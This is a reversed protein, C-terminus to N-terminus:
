PFGLFGTMAATYWYITLNGPQQFHSHKVITGTDTESGDNAYIILADGDKFDNGSFPYTTNPHTVFLQWRNGAPNWVWAGKEAVIVSHGAADTTLRDISVTNLVTRTPIVDCDFHVIGTAPDATKWQQAQSPTATSLYVILSMFLFRKLAIEGRTMM